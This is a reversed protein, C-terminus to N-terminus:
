QEIWTTCSKKRSSPTDGYAIWQSGFQKKAHARETRRWLQRDLSPDSQLPEIKIRKGSRKSPTTVKFKIVPPATAPVAAPVAPIAPTPPPSPPLVAPAPKAPTSYNKYRSLATMYNRVKVEDPDDSKLINTIDTDLGSLAKDRMSPKVFRPDVLVFKKTHDMNTQV